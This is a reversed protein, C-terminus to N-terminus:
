SRAQERLSLCQEASLQGPATPTAGLYGYLLASGHATYLLRSSPGLPGMGMIAAPMSCGKLFELGSQVDAEHDPTFAIKVVTAGAAHAQHELERMERVSPMSHFYHASAIVPVGMAKAAQMLEGAAPLQAIEWDLAAAAPLLEIAQRLRTPEDWACAGGESRHRLTLLLPKPCAAQLPLRREEARLADVRLEVVDCPLAAQKALQCFVEAASVAGVM